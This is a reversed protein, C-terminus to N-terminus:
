HPPTPGRVGGGKWAHAKAVRKRGQGVEGRGARGGAAGRVQVLATGVHEVSVAVDWTGGQATAASGADSCPVARGPPQYCRRQGASWVAVRVARAREGASWAAWRDQVQLAVTERQQVRRCVAMKRCPAAGPGAAVSYRERSRERCPRCLCARGAPCARNQAACARAVTPEPLAAHVAPCVIADYPRLCAGNTDTRGLARQLARVAAYSLPADWAAYRGARAAPHSRNLAHLAVAVASVVDSSTHRLAGLPRPPFSPCLTPPTVFPRPLPPPPAATRPSM